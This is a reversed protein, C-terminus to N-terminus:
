GHLASALTGALLRTSDSSTCAGAVAALWAMLREHGGSTRAHLLPPLPLVGKRLAWHGDDRPRALDLGVANQWAPKCWSCGMLVCRPTEEPSGSHGM